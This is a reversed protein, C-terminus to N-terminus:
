NATLVGSISQGNAFNFVYNCTENSIIPNSLYLVTSGDFYTISNSLIPPTGLPVCSVNSSCQYLTISSNGPSWINYSSLKTASGPNNFEIAVTAGGQLTQKTPNGSTLRASELTITQVSNIMCVNFTCPFYKDMLSEYVPHPAICHTFSTCGSEVVGTNIIPINVAVMLAVFAILLILAVKYRM